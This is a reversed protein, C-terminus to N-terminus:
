VMSLILELDADDAVRMLYYYVYEEWDNECKKFLEEYSEEVDSAEGFINKDVMEEIDRRMLTLLIHKFNEKKIEWAYNIQKVLEVNHSNYPNMIGSTLEISDTYLLPQLFVVEVNDPTNKLRHDYTVLSEVKRVALKKAETLSLADVKIVMESEARFKVIYEMDNNTKIEKVFTTNEKSDEFYIEKNLECEILEVYGYEWEGYQYWYGLKTKYQPTFNAKSRNSFKTIEFNDGKEGNRWREVVEEMKAIAKAKDTFLYNEHVEAEHSVIVSYITKSMTKIQKNIVPAFILYIILVAFYFKTNLKLKLLGYVM